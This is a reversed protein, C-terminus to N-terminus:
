NKKIYPIIYKRSRQEYQLFIARTCGQVYDLEIFVEEPFASKKEERSRERMRENREEEERTRERGRGFYLNM